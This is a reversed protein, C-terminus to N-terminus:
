RIGSEALRILYQGYENAKMPKAITRLQQADIFGRRFAIEELAAVRLGQRKEIAEIFNSAEMLSDITGTDLWAFGRGFCKVNLRGEKMYIENVSTIELEGRASPKIKKATQIVDNPYFYLGVVAKDSKPNTPKEEIDIAKGNEDLTVVGYRQPDLVPYAFVTAENKSAINLADVLMATFGQGYFINDGLVLCVDDNGIFQEGILFAQALGEPRPQEAYEFKVGLDSGDGLLRRFMPLDTPTSIILIERIGALMLVSIPYYVMPKDYVPILQKSIGKTIPYLRTGSGGALVIGKM